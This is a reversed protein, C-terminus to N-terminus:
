SWAAALTCHRSATLATVSAISSAPPTTLLTLSAEVTDLKAARLPAVLANPFKGCHRVPRLWARGRRQRRAQGGRSEGGGGEAGAAGALAQVGGLLVGRSGGVQVRE